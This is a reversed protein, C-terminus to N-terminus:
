VDYQLFPEVYISSSSSRRSLECDKDFDNGNSDDEIRQSESYIEHVFSPQSDTTPTPFCGPLANDVDFDLWYTQLEGKGKAHVLDERPEFWHKYGRRELLTATQESIQIMNPRGTSEMRSATNITDGFLEFRSKSGRLVGGTVSGSHLGFRMSLSNISPGFENVLETLVKNTKSRCEEAFKAM